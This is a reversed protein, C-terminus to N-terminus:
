AVPLDFTLREHVARRVMALQGAHWWTHKHNWLVAEGKTAATPHPIPGPPLPEDLEEPGLRGISQLSAAQMRALHRKLDAPTGASARGPPTARTFLEGYERLPMAAAVAPDHGRIALITHFYFSVVLHGVQWTVSTELGAPRENWREEPIDLALRDIWAYADATQRALHELATM